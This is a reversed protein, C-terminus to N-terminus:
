EFVDDDAGPEPGFRNPGEQSGAIGLVLWFVFGILSIVLSVGSIAM